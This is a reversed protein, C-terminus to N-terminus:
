VSLTNNFCNDEVNSEQSANLHLPIDSSFHTSVSKLCQELFLRIRNSSAENEPFTNHLFANLVARKQNAVILFDCGAHLAAYARTILDGCDAGTMGLCDSIAIGEFGYANRLISFWKKSYGAPYEADIDPYTVHASMIGDLCKEQILQKFPFLDLAELTSWSRDDLPKGLHSDMVTHGHGPFHKAITLMGAKHMGQIFCRALNTTIVPDAHFARDLRAIIPNEAFHLDLVPALSLHIGCSLLDQAMIFGFHSAMELAAQPHHEYMEGYVRPAPIARFGERQLRQVYGGEQDVMLILDDRINKIHHILDQLQEKSSFNRTFLLVGAVFEHKLLIVEEPSIGTKELDIFLFPSRNM